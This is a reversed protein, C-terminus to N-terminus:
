ATSRWHLRWASSAELYSGRRRLWRSSRILRPTPDEYTCMGQVQATRAAPDVGIVGTLGSVDLGPSTTASRARFLNSTTKALRVPEGAPIADYSTRLRAM